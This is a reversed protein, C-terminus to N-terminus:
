DPGLYLSNKEIIEADKQGSLVSLGKFGFTLDGLVYKEKFHGVFEM